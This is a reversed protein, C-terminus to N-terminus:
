ANIIVDGGTFVPGDKCARIKGGKTNCTCVLCAGIGCAMRREMSVFVQVGYKTCNDIVKKMMAEPGCCLVLSYERANFIDTIYGNFGENGSDTAIHINEVYDRFRDIAYVGDRFGAYLDVKTCKLMKATYFMPAIGIGGCVVAVRGSINHTDFGNGLPGTLKIEDDPKLRSLLETGRGKAEYLFSISDEDLDHISIPRSLFPELDWARLMYFQGPSGSFSGKISLKYISEAIENNKLVRSESYIPQM